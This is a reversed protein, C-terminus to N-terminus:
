WKAAPAKVGTDTLTVAGDGAQITGAIPTATIKYSAPNTSTDPNPVAVTTTYFSSVESPTSLGLGSSGITSTYSRADLLYQQEKNAITLMFSQAASRNSDIVYQRYAPLAISAIIGIIAVVIMLEILTFGIQQRSVGYRLFGRPLTGRGQMEVMVDYNM